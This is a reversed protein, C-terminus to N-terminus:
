PGEEEAEARRKAAKKLEEKKRKVERASEIYCRHVRLNAYAKCTPCTSFGCQHKKQENLGNNLKGCSKCHRVTKCVSQHPSFVGAVSYQLHNALCTSGFFYRGCPECLLTAKLHQPHCTEFDPCDHRRCCKCLKNELAQCRHHGKDNYGKLCYPCYYSTQYYGNLTNCGHYHDDHHIIIIDKKKEDYPAFAVAESNRGVYVCIIRYEPLVAQFKKLEDPGVPCDEPVGALKSLRYAAQLQPRDSTKSQAKTLQVRTGHGSPFDVAAKAAVIARPGCLKDNPNRIKIVSKNKLLFDEAGLYGLKKRRPKETGRLVRAVTTVELRFTDNMEFSENSNLASQLHNFIQDVMHTSNRWDGAVLGNARYAQDRLRDSFIDFYVRHNDPADRQDILEQIARQLGDRLAPALHDMVNGEQRLNAQYRREQIGYRRNQDRSLPQLEFVFRGPQDPNINGGQQEILNGQYQRQNERANYFAEANAAFRETEAAELADVLQQDEEFMEMSAILDQDSM